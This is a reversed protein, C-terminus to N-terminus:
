SERKKARRTAADEQDAMDLPFTVPSAPKLKNWASQLKASTFNSRNNVAQVQKWRGRGGGSFLNLQRCLV